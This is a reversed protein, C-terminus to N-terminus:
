VCAGNSSRSLFSYAVQIWFVLHWLSGSLYLKCKSCFFRFAVSFCVQPALCSFSEAILKIISAMIQM